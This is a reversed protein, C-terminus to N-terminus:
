KKRIIVKGSIQSIVNQSPHLRVYLRRSEFEERTLESKWRSRYAPNSRIKLFLRRDIGARKHVEVDTMGSEDILEFLKEHFFDGAEGLLHQLDM